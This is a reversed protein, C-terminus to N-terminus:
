LKERGNIFWRDRQKTNVKFFVENFCENYRSFRIDSNRPKHMIRIIELNKERKRKAPTSRDLRTVQVICTTHLQKRRKTKSNQKLIIQLMTHCITIATPSLFSFFYVFQLSGIPHNAQRIDYALTTGAWTRVDVVAAGGTSRDAPRKTRIGFLRHPRQIQRKDREREREKQLWSVSILWLNM